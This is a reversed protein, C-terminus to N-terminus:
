RAGRDVARRSRRARPGAGRDLRGLAADLFLRQGTMLPLERVEAISRFVSDVVYEDEVMHEGRYRSAEAMFVVQVFDPYPYAYDVPRPTLHRFHMCGLLHPSDITWGTEELVERRLAQELNEGDERRGGPLIHMGSLDRQVLVTEDKFLLCRVSTVHEIPPLRGALYSTVQLQIRGDAWAASEEVLPKCGALYSTLGIVDAM